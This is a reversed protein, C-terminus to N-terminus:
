GLEDVALWCALVAGEDLYAWEEVPAEASGGAGAAHRRLCVGM